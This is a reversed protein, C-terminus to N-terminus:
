KISRWYEIEESTLHRDYMDVSHPGHPVDVKWIYNVANTETYCDKVPYAGKNIQSQWSLPPASIKMSDGGAPIDIDVKITVKFDTCGSLTDPISIPIELATSDQKVMWEALAQVLESVLTSQQMVLSAMLGAKVGILKASSM